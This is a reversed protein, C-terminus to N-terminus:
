ECSAVFFFLFGLWYGASNRLCMLVIDQMHLYPFGGNLVRMVVLANGNWWPVSKSSLAESVM